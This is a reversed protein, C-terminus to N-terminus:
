HDEYFPKYNVIIEGTIHDVFINKLVLRVPSDLFDEILSTKNLGIILPSISLYLEDILRNKFLSAILQGGGEVLIKRISFERYLKEVAKRLDIKSPDYKDTDVFLIRVGRSLFRRIMERDKNNISTILITPAHRTDFVRLEPMVRLKGDVVVRYPQKGKYDPLRVTLLPDDIIVTNAGVMVADVISRFYHLRYIDRDSSLRYRKGKVSLGGDVSITSFVLIYPREM